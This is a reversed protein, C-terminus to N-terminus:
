FEKNIYKDCRLRELNGVALANYQNCLEKLKQQQKYAEARISKLAQIAEPVNEIYTNSIYCLMFSELPLVKIKNDPTLLSNREGSEPNYTGGVTIRYDRSPSGGVAIASINIGKYSICVFCNTKAKLEYRIKEATKEGHPKGEYAKLTDLIIPMVENYLAICANNKVIEFAICNNLRATKLQATAKEERAAIKGAENKIQQLDKQLESFTKM